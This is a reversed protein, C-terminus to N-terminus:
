RKKRPDYVPGWFLIVVGELSRHPGVLRWLITASASAITKRGAQSMGIAEGVRDDNKRPDYVPGWFLIVVGELSRHPGVLRWLITASASAITKRGAQSM